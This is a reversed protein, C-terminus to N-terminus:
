KTGGKKLDTVEDELHKVKERLNDESAYAILLSIFILAYLIVRLWVPIADYSISLFTFIVVNFMIMSVIM